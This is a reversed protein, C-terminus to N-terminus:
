RNMNPDPAGPVAIGVPGFDQGNQILNNTTKPIEARGNLFFDLDNGALSDDLPTKLKKGPPVPKVLYPTVIVVLETEKNQFANSRFLAGLVPINGLWPLEEITRQSQAQLM